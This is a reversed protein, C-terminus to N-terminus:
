FGEGIVLLIAKPLIVAHHASGMPEQNGLLVSSVGM